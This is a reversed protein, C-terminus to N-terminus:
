CAFQVGVYVCAGNGVGKMWGWRNLLDAERDVLQVIERTLGCDFEKATWKVHLLLDLREDVTLSALGLGRHLQRLEGARATAPTTVAVKPSSSAPRADSPAGMYRPTRTCRSLESFAPRRRGGWLPRGAARVKAGNRLEWTKPAAMAGLAQDARAGHAEHRANVRLRDITQLLRTEKALLLRLAEQPTSLCLPRLPPPTSPPPEFPNSPHPNAGPPVLAPPSRPPGAARPSPATRACVWRGPGSGRVMGRRAGRARRAQERAADLGAAKIRGTEHRRWAELEAELVRFDSRKVPHMRREVQRRRPAPASPLHPCSVVPRPRDPLSPALRPPAPLARPPGRPYLACPGCRRTDEAENARRAERAALFAEREAKDGRLGAARARAAWGRAFRQVTLAAAERRALVERATVYVRPTLERDGSADIVAGPRPMQTAAERLTQACRAARTVTQTERCARPPAAPPPAAPPTQTLAHHYTAGSGRHKFGGLFPKPKPESVDVEVRVLRCPVGPGCDM